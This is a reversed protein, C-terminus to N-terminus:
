KRMMGTWPSIVYYALGDSPFSWTDSVERMFKPFVEIIDLQHLCEKERARFRKHALTKSKKDSRGSFKIFPHRRISRSM